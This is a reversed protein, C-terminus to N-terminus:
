PRLQNMATTVVRAFADESPHAPDDTTALVLACVQNGDHGVAYFFELGATKARVRLVVVNGDTAPAPLDVVTGDVEDSHNHRAVCDRIEKVAKAARAKAVEADAFTGIYQDAQSVGPAIADYEDNGKTQYRKGTV